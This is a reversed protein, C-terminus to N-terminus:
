GGGARAAVVGAGALLCVSAVLTLQTRLPLYWAPLANAMGQAVLRRDQLWHAVFGAVLLVAAGPAGWLLAPWAVLAPVVSWVYLGQRSAAGPGPLAIAFGWHLAGVFSLIVAGYALLAPWWLATSRAPELWLLLALGAFPLLGGYGLWAVTRPLHSSPTAVAAPAAASSVAKKMAPSQFSITNRQTANRQTAGRLLESACHPLCFLSKVRFGKGM